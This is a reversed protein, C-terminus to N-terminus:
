AADCARCPQHLRLNGAAVLTTQTILLLLWASFVIGHAVFLPEPPRPFEPFLPKLYFSRAFGAVVALVMALVFGGFFRREVTGARVKDGAGRVANSSMVQQNIANM